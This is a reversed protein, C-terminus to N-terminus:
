PYNLTHALCLVCPGSLRHHSFTLTVSTSSVLNPYVLSASKLTMRTGIDETSLLFCGTCGIKKKKIVLPEFFM